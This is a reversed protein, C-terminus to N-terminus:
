AFPTWFQADSDPFRFERPMVGIVSYDIGDLSVIHGFVELNGAFCRHWAAHSLIVVRDLGSAEERPEFLRGFLPSQGLMAFVDPSVRVGNM